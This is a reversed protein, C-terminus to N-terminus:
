SEVGRDEARLDRCPTAADVSAGAMFLTLDQGCDACLDYQTKAMRSGAQEQRRVEVEAVEALARTERSCRDCQWVTQHSM